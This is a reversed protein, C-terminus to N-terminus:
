CIKPTMTCFKVSLWFEVLGLFTLCERWKGQCWPSQECLIRGPLGSLWNQM